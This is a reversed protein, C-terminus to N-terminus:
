HMGEAGISAGDNEKYELGRQHNNSDQQYANLAGAIAGMKGDQAGAPVGVTITTEAEEVTPMRSARLAEESRSQAYFRAAVAPSHGFWSCIDAAPFKKFLETERSSRLNMFLKPWPILGAAKIMRTFATGLNKRPSCVIPFVPSTMATKRGPQVSDSLSKLYPQLEQFMPCTRSTHVGGHHKTKPSKIKIEGKNFDFDEWTLGHLESPVRAGTLRAFAIIAAWESNPACAIVKVIDQWSIFKQRERNERVTKALGDFPNESTLKWRIATKFIQSATGTRRRVTNPELTTRNLERKNGDSSLWRTWAEADRPTVSALERDEGFFEIMLDCVQRDRTITAKALGTRSAKYEECFKKLTIKRVKEVLGADELKLRLDTNISNVWESLAQPLSGGGRRVGQLEEFKVRFQEATKKPMSGLRMARRKKNENTWALRWSNRDKEKTLSAM